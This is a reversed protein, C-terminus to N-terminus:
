SFRTKTHCASNDTPAQDRPMQLRELPRPKPHNRSGAEDIMADLAVLMAPRVLTTPHVLVTPHVLAACDVLVADPRPPSREREDVRGGSTM